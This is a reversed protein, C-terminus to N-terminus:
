INAGIMEPQGGDLLWGAQSPPPFQSSRAMSPPCAELTHQSCSWEGKGGWACPLLGGWSPCVSLCGHLTVSLAAGGNNPTPKTRSPFDGAYGDHNM